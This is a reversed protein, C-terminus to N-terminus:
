VLLEDLFARAAPSPPGERRVVVLDRWLPPRFRHIGVGSAASREAVPLPVLAVGAGQEVLPMILERQDTEVAITAAVGASGLMQDLLARTSTGVPQTVIPQDALDRARLTEPVRVGPPFAAVIEQRDLPTVVLDPARAPRETIGLERAGTRVSHLLAATGEPHAIRVTVGPHRRRFAGVLPAVPDLALTPLAVLDLRGVTLGAVADVEAAVADFSRLAPRAAAVFADGAATLTVARGSRVFLETGLEQELRRVSQSLSPQAVFCRRAAETFTGTDAVAVVYRLHQIEM